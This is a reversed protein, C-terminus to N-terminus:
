YMTTDMIIVCLLNAMNLTVVTIVSMLLSSFLSQEHYCSQIPSYVIASIFSSQLVMDVTKVM